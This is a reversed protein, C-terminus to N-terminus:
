ILFGAALNVGKGAADAIHGRQETNAQNKFNRRDILSNWYGLKANGRAEAGTLRQGATAFTGKWRNDVSTDLADFGVDAVGALNSLRTQRQTQDLKHRDLARNYIKDYETSALDGAYGIAAKTHAGSSGLGGAAMQRRIAKLGESMRFQYGPDAYLDSMKPVAFEGADFEGSALGGQIDALATHGAEVWPAFREDSLAVFNTFDDINDLTAQNIIDGAELNANALEKYPPTKAKGTAKIISSVLGGM